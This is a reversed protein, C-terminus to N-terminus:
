EINAEHLEIREEALSRAKKLSIIPHRGLRKKSGKLVTLFTRRRKGIRIGFSPLFTDWYIGEPLRTILAETFLVNSQRLLQKRKPNQIRNQLQERRQATRIRHCNSCVLQCKKLEAWLIAPNGISLLQSINGTKRHQPLHDFEMADPHYRQSCDFCPTNEKFTKIAERITITQM